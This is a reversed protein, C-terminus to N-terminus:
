AAGGWAGGLALEVALVDGDKLGYTERLSIDAVIEVLTRAAGERPTTTTWLFAPRRDSTELRCPLFLIDREGGYEACDFRILAPEYRPNMWDFVQPLRLNLSGPLVPMGLKRAYAANFRSLWINANQTGAEVRGMLREPM